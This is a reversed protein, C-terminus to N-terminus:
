RTLAKRNIPALIKSLIEGAKECENLTNYKGISIRLSNGAEVDSLGLATLVRSPEIVCGQCASGSSLCLGQLDARLVLAEGKSGTAVLSIHGPLRRALDKPGTLKITELLALKDLLLSQMSRLYGTTEEIEQHALEAAKGIAVINPIAETGPLLGKEQGGFQIPMLRVGSRIFLVGIGKPAYFKHGSLSLTSVPVQQLDLPLKGPMQVADTHFYISREQAIEALTNIPQVTGIENNAWHISAMSTDPRIANLFTDVSVFGERNVPLYTVQWGQSELYQAPGFLSPHEISTTILHRGGANAKISRAKGLIATNNSNTGGSSFWIEEPLCNLLQAVQQRAKDLAHKAAQGATHLSSANGYTEAFYPLMAEVVESRVKTTASNDLYISMTQLEQRWRFVILVDM